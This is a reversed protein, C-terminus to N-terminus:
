RRIELVARQYGRVVNETEVSSEVVAQLRMRSPHDAGASPGLMVTAVSPPLNPLREGSILAGTDPRILTAYVNQNSRIHNLLFVLHELSRPRFGAPADAAEMRSLTLSDGVQLLAKGEPTEAPIELPIEIVEREGRFTRLAVLLPLVEGPRATHRELWISEIRSERRADEYDMFLNIGEIRIARDDNNMLLWTMYAVTGSAYLAALDGSFLNEIDVDLDGGVRITSGEKLRLTVDGFYKEDAALMNLVSVYLLGPALLPDPVIDFRYTSTRGDPHSLEIRVPLMEVKGGVVGAVGPFRDQVIAGVEERPSAIKFSSAISPFHGHVHAATMPLATDGIGLFPHGLGFVRNGELWTVTGIATVELDGRMLSAGFASGPRLRPSTGAASAASSGALVPRVAMSELVPFWEGVVAPHFGGFVLTPRMPEIMAPGAGGGPRRLRDRLFGPIRDPRALLSVPADVGTRRDPLTLLGSAGAPADPRDLSRAMEEAPTIGCIPEKAFGWAYALAGALRGELYVPSGSMGELVGSEALPGGALRALILNKGPLFNEMTAIVEVDFEDIADGAFVTRGVGKMGVQVERFPIIDTAALAPSALLLCGAFSRLRRALSM